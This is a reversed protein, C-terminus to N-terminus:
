CTLYFHSDARRPLHHTSSPFVPAETPISLVSAMLSSSIVLSCTKTLFPFPALISGQASMTYSDPPSASNSSSSLLLTWPPLVIPFFPFYIHLLSSARLLFIHGILNFLVSFQGHSKAVQLEHIVKVATTKSSYTPPPKPLIFLPHVQLPKPLWHSSLFQLCHARQLSEWTAWHTFFGGVICSIHTWDRPWSSGRSSSIAVLGTNKGPFDWYCFLRTPELGHPQLSDSVVSIVACARVCVAPLFTCRFSNHWLLLLRLFCSLSVYHPTRSLIRSCFLGNSSFWSLSDSYVIFDFDSQWTRSKTVGRVICDMSNELGSYQLPYGKREGPYRGLGPISGLDGAPLNKVLQAGLSTWSNQM